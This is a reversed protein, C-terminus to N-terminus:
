VHAQRDLYALVASESIRVVGDTGPRGELKGSFVLGYVDEPEIGLRRAAETTTLEEDVAMSVLRVRRKM